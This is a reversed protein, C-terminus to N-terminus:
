ASTPCTRSSSWCCTGARTSSLRRTSRWPGGARNPACNPASTGTEARGCRRTRWPGATRASAAVRLGMATDANTAWVEFPEGARAFDPFEVGVPEGTSLVGAPELGDCVRRLQKLAHESNILDAHRSDLWVAQGTDSWEPPIQAIHAVTGDGFLPLGQDEPDGSDSFDQHFKPRGDPSLSLAQDTRHKDGGLPVLTYRRLGHVADNEEIADQM